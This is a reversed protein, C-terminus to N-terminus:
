PAGRRNFYLAVAERADPETIASLKVSDLATEQRSLSCKLLVNYYERRAASSLGRGQTCLKFVDAILLWRAVEVEPRAFGRLEEVWEDLSQPHVGDLTVRIEKVVEVAARPFPPHLAAGPVPVGAKAWVLGMDRLNVRVIGPPLNTVPMPIVQNTWLDLVRVTRAVERQVLVRKRERSGSLWRILLILLHIFPM